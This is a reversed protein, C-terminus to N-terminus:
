ECTQFVHLTCTNHVHLWQQLPCTIYTNRIKLTYKYGQNDPMCHAHAMNAGTIQRDRCYKEVYRMFPMIKSFFNSFVFHTNQNEGCHEDSVNRM